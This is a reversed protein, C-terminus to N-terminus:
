GKLTPTVGDQVLWVDKDLKMNSSDNLWASASFNFQEKGQGLLTIDFNKDAYVTGNLKLESEKAYWCRTSKISTDSGKELSGFLYGVKSEGLNDVEVNVIAFISDIKSQSNRGVFGGVNASAVATSKVSVSGTVYCANIAGIGTTESSSSDTKESFNNGIFGGVNLQSTAKDTAIGDLKVSAHCNLIYGENKGIAGGVNVIGGVNTEGNLTIAIDTTAVSGTNDACAGGLYTEDASSVGNLTLSTKSKSIFGGNKGVIGGVRLSPRGNASEGDDKCSIQGLTIATINNVLRASANSEGTIGGFTLAECNVGSVSVTVDNNLIYGKNSDGSLGKNVACIGGFVITNLSDTPTGLASLDVSVVCGDIKGGNQTALASVYVKDNYKGNTNKAISLSVNKVIVNKIEGSVYGFISAHDSNGFVGGQLTAKSAVNGNADYTAGDIVGVFVHNADFLPELANSAFDITGILEIRAGLIDTIALKAKDDPNEVRLADYINKYDNYSQISLKKTWSAYLRLTAPTFYDTLGCAVYLSTGSQEDDEFAFDYKVDNGDEDKLTYYWKDFEYGSKSRVVLKEDTTPVSKNVPYSIRNGDNYVVESYAPNDRYVVEVKPLTSEFMPYLTLPETFTYKNLLAVSSAGQAWKTFQVPKGDKMYFWFCFVDGERTPCNLAESTSGSYTSKITTTKQDFDAVPLSATEEGDAFKVISYSYTGDDNKVYQLKSDLVPTHYYVNADYKATLTINKNITDTAFDFENSGDASWFRFTYGKKVPRIENGDADKPKDIKSGAPVNKIVSDTLVFDSDTNFTVTYTATEFENPKDDVDPPTTNDCAVLAVCAAIAMLVVLITMLTKKM